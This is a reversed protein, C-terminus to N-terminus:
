KKKSFYFSKLENIQVMAVLHDGNYFSIFDENSDARDAEINIFGEQGYTQIIARM